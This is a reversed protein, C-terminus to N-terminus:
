EYDDRGKRKKVIKEIFSSVLMIFKDSVGDVFSGTKEVVNFVGELSSVKNNIEDVTNDIKTLTKILKIGLIIVYFM